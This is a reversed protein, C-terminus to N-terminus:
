KSEEVIQECTVKFRGKGVMPFLKSYVAKGNPTVSSMTDPLIIWECEFEVKLPEIYPEWADLSLSGEFSTNTTLDMIRGGKLGIVFNWEKSILKGGNLIYRLREEQTKM